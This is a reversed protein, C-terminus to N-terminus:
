IRVSIINVSFLSDITCMLCDKIHDQILQTVHVFTILIGNMQRQARHTQDM